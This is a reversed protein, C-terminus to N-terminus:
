NASFAEYPTKTGHLPLEIVGHAQGPLKSDVVVVVKVATPVTKEGVNLQSTGRFYYYLATKDTNSLPNLVTVDYLSAQFTQGLGEVTLSGGDIDCPIIDPKTLDCNKLTGTKLDVSQYLTSSTFVTGRFNGIPKPVEVAFGVLSIFVLSGMAKKM